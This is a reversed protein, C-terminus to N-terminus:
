GRCNNLTYSYAATLQRHEVLMFNDLRLFIEACAWYTPHCDSWHGSVMESRKKELALLKWAYIYKDFCM